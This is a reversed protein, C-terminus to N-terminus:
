FKYNVGARVVNLTLTTDITSGCNAAPCQVSGMDIYLYEIKATWNHQFAYEFGAGATWGFQTKTTGSFGGAEARIDGFAGGGTIYPLFRDFAYGIRARATGSWTSRTECGLPCNTNTSGKVGSWGIDAEAGLVTSGLQWNYGITGGALGGNVDFGGTTLGTATDTWESSGFGYGAYAGIYFGTWTFFPVFVPAKPMPYPRSPAIDAAQASSLALVSLGIGALLTRRITLRRM